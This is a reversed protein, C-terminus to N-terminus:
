YIELSKAVSTELSTAAALCREATQVLDLPRFNKPPLSVTAVGASMVAQVERGLSALRRQSDEVHRFAAYAVQLAERRDFGPLILTRRNPVESEAVLSSWREERCAAELLHPLIAEDTAPSAASNIELLLISLPIRQSRCHGVALTLTQLFSSPNDAEASPGELFKKGVPTGNNPRDPDDVDAPAPPKCQCYDGVAERLEQTEDLSSFNALYDRRSTQDPPQVLSEVLESMQEHAASVIALYDAQDIGELSLVQALQDVKPQLQTVLERLRPKDLGCYLEGAEMLEPLANLRNQGVLEALLSALHLVRGLQSNSNDDIALEQVNQQAAIARSLVLPMNWSELLASSLNTHDFGIAEQEAEALPVGEDIVRALFNAYPEGLQGLLVLLGIDQLLGALFAEDGARGFLGESIERAAVARALTTSWYWQLQERAVGHFLNEPLSFGLVLLKLPKTGLLALAQNLDSVERSLGFLSSNVVRLVKVTLAPDREICAKLVRADVTPNATLGIVEAAVVPLSYLSRARLVMEDLTTPAMTSDSDISAIQTTM